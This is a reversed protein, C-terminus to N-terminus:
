AVSNEFYKKCVNECRLIISEMQETSKPLTPLRKKYEDITQKAQEIKSLHLLLIASFFGLHTWGYSEETNTIGYWDDCIFDLEKLAGCLRNIIKENNAFPLKKEFRKLIDPMNNGTSTLAQRYLYYDEYGNNKDISSKFDFGFVFLGQWRDISSSNQWPKRVMWQTHLRYAEEWEMYNNKIPEDFLLGKYILLSYFKLLLEKELLKPAAAIVDKKLKMWNMVYWDGGSQGTEMAKQESEIFAYLIEQKKM